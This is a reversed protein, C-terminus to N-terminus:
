GGYTLRLLSSFTAEDVVVEHGEGELDLVAVRRIEGARLAGDVLQVDRSEKLEVVPFFFM